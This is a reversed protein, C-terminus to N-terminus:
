KDYFEVGEVYWDFHELLLEDSITQNRKCRLNRDTDYIVGSFVDQGSMLKNISETVKERTKESVDPSFDDLKVANEDIGVWYMKINSSNGKLYQRIIAEYTLKWDCLVATLHKDSANNLRQHYGISCIGAKEAEEAVYPQNQHYTIVDVGTNEILQDAQLREAEEDDWSNSWAVIVSAEPNVHRAGLTFANIGRNVESNPMAAVYGIQNTKTQMGAVIGALYRAQYMRAFYSTVNDAHYNFTNAYFAVDPYKKILDSVEEPYGYSSLIIMECGQKVLDEVAPGCQGEFEKVNEKALLDVNLDKCAESVGKYHTGNWGEDGISGTMIFGIKKKSHSTKGIFLLMVILIALLGFFVVLLINRKEKNLKM